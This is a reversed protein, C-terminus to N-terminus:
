ASVWQKRVLAYWAEFAHEADYGEGACDYGFCFWTYRGQHIQPTM